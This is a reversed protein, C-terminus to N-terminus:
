PVARRLRRAYLVLGVLIVSWYGIVRDLVVISVALSAPLDVVQTLVGVLGLEVLGLGAPTIPVTTLLSGMLAVFLATALSVDADVSRAVLWVRLGESGWIVASISLFLGPRRLCAFVADHLRGYQEQVRAPLRRQLAHRTLWMTVLGVGALGILGLGLLFAREAEAPLRGHFLALGVGCMALFLVTLDTLREALITGFTTSFSAGAEQKLLYSRYADGLKAPVVCNAFWSLLFIEVMGGTGPVRYGHAPDIGVRALMQRWRFARLVFGGYWVVFGLGFLVPDAGRLTRWVEALDVDLRWVFFVLVAAAIAFSALTRPRLVRGGLSGPGSEGTAPEPALPAASAATKGDAVETALPAEVEVPAAQRM